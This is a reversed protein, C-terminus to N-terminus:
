QAEKQITGSADLMAIDGGHVVEPISLNIQPAGNARVLVTTSDSGGGDNTVTLKM